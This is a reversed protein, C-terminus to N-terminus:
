TAVRDDPYNYLIVDLLKPRKAVPIALATEIQALEEETVLVYTHTRGCHGCSRTIKEPIKKGACFRCGKQRNNSM